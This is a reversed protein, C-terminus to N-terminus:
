ARRPRSHTVSVHLTDCRSEGMRLSPCALASARSPSVAVKILTFVRVNALTLEQTRRVYIRRISVILAKEGKGSVGSTSFIFPVTVRAAETSM